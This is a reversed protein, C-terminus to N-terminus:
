IVRLASIRSHGQPKSVGHCKPCKGSFAPQVWEYGCKLCLFPVMRRTPQIKVLRDLTEPTPEDNM